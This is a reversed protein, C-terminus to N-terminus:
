YFELDRDVIVSVAAGPQVSIIPPLSAYDGIIANTTNTFNEGIQQAADAGIRSDQGAAILAPGSGIISLLASSGFRAGFRSNVDGTVGSRGQEDTGFAALEVSQGEPTVLRTWGVLIRSQALSVNSSYSGFLRSGQPILVRSQDFSWVPRNVVASIQGPLSSDIATELTAEVITGQLITHGPRAIVSAASVKVSKAGDLVFARGAADRTLPAQGGGGTPGAAQESPPSTAGGTDFVIADSRIQAERLAEAEARRTEMDTQRKREESALRDRETQERMADDLGTKMQDSLAQNERQLQTIMETLQQQQVGAQRAREDAAANQSDFASAADERAKREAALRRQNEVDAKALRNDMEDQLQAILAANQAQVAQLAEALTAGDMGGPKATAIKGLQAQLDAVDKALRENQVELARRQAELETEIPGPDFQPARIAEDRQVDGPRIPGFGSGDDPNQFEDPHSTELTRVFGPTSLYPYAIATLGGLVLVSVGVKAGTSMRRKRQIVYKKEPTGDQADTM